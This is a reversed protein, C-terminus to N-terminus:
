HCKSVYSYTFAGYTEHFQKAIRRICKYSMRRNKWLKLDQKIHIGHMDSAKELKIGCIKKLDTGGSVGGNRSGVEGVQHPEVLVARRKRREWDHFSETESRKIDTERKAHSHDPCLSPM